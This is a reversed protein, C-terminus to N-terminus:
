NVGSNGIEEIRNALFEIADTLQQGEVPVHAGMYVKLWKQESGLLDFLEFQGDRTFFQDDWKQQFLVPCVVKPAAESLVQSNPFNTGWMGLVAAKIRGDRAALPLGYATGMSIGFWAIREDDIEPLDVLMDLTARWDAVMDDVRNDVKWMSSFEAQVELGFRGDARRAGHIPGDIAAVHYGHRTVFTAALDAVRKEARYQSGGHGILVLPRPVVAGEPSWVIGPVKRGEVSLEFERTAIEFPSRGDMGM